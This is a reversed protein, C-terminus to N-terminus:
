LLITFLHHTFHINNHNKAMICSRRLTSLSHWPIAKHNLLVHATMKQVYNQSCFFITGKRLNVWRRWSPNSPNHFVSQTPINNSCRRGIRMHLIRVRWNYLTLIHSTTCTTPEDMVIHPFAPLHLIKHWHSMFSLTPLHFRCNWHLGYASTSSSVSLSPSGLQSTVLDM